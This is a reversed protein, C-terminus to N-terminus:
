ARSRRRSRASLVLLGPGMLLMTAPEPIELTVANIISVNDYSVDTPTAPPRAWLTVTPDTATFEMTIVQFRDFGDGTIVNLAQDYITRGDGAPDNTFAGSYLLYDMERNGPNLGAGFNNESLIVQLKYAQGPTVSMEYTLRGEGQSPLAISTLVSELNDDAPTTGFDPATNFPDLSGGFFTVGTILQANNFDDSFTADRITIDPSTGFIGGAGANIAYLFEGDLDLGEGAAPGTYTGIVAAESAQAQALIIIGLVAFFVPKIKM